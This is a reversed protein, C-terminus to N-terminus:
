SSNNEGERFLGVVGARFFAKRIGLLKFCSSFIQHRTYLWGLMGVVFRLLVSSTVDANGQFPVEVCVPQWTPEILLSAVM